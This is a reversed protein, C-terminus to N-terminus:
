HRSEVAEPQEIVPHFQGQWVALYEAGKPTIRWLVAPRYGGLAPADQGWGLPVCRLHGARQAYGSSEFARLTRYIGRYVSDYHRTGDALPRTLRSIPAGEPFEALTALVRIHWPLTLV